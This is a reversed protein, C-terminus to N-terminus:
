PAVQGAIRDIIGVAVALGRQYELWRDSTATEIKSTEAAHVRESEVGARASAFAAALDRYARLLDAIDATRLEAGDPEFEFDVVPDCDPHVEQRLKLWEVLREISSTVFDESPSASPAILETM